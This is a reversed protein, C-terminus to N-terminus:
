NMARRDVWRAPQMYTSLAAFLCLVALMGLCVILLVTAKITEMHIKKLENRRCFSIALFAYAM